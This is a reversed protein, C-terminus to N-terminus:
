LNNNLNLPLSRIDKLETAPCPDGWQSNVLSLKSVESAPNILHKNVERFGLDFYNKEVGPTM